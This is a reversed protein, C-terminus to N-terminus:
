AHPKETRLLIKQRRKDTLALETLLLNSPHVPYLAKSGDKKVQEVGEVFVRVRKPLVQVIKGTRTKFQGRMVKVTDGKRVALTNKKHKQKLEKSLAASLLQKRRHLPLNKQYKRQKRPQTSAKWSKSWRKM